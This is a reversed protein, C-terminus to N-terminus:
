LGFSKVLEDFDEPNRRYDWITLIQIHKDKIRYIMWYDRVLKLRVNKYNTKEGISPYDTLLEAAENFLNNLKRSYSKSKNHENLYEFIDRKQRLSLKSWILKRVM